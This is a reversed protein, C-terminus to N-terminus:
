YQYVLSKVADVNRRSDDSIPRGPPPTKKLSFDGSLINQIWGQITRKCPSASANGHVVVLEYHIMYATKGLKFQTLVHFRFDCNM